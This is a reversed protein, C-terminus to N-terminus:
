IKPFKVSVIANGRSISLVYVGRPLDSFDFKVSNAYFQNPNLEEQHILQGLMNFVRFQYPFFIPTQYNLTVENDSRSTKVGLIDLPGVAGQCLATVGDIAKKINLHGGTVTKGELGANPETNNLIAEKVRIACADPDTLADITFGECGLSYLLGITGTVHPTAGSTGGLQNSYSPVDGINYTTYTGEGPAGLDITTKGYGSPIRSGLVNVNTVTILYDSGCSTPMDGYIDVDTNGNTTAGVNLVGVSGLSDYLSCWTKFEANATPFQNDYGFSANTAVVFAGKAGNTQNYMRRMNFVYYYGAIIESPYEIGSINMMKINWNIGAVGIGNNGVAGIVGYVGTGHWGNNGTDDMETAPNWGGFDDVFGNGDNDIGDNPVEQWNWWRNGALDPHTLLAGRELVAVVITDGQLTLGGTSTDWADPANILSMDAQQFYDPDNPTVSREQLKYNLDCFMVEPMSQSIEQLQQINAAGEEFGILYIHWKPVINRKLYAGAGGGTFRNLELLYSNLDAEDTLRVILEGPKYISGLSQSFSSHYFGFLLCFLLLYNKM